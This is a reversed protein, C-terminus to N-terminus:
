TNRIFHIRCNFRNNERSINVIFLEWWFIEHRVNTVLMSSATDGYNLLINPRKQWYCNWITILMWNDDVDSGRVDM